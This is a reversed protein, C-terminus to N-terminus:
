EALANCRCSLYRTTPVEFKEKCRTCEECLGQSLNEDITVTCRGGNQNSGLRPLAVVNVGLTHSEM